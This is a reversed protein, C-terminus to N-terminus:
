RRVEVLAAMLLLALLGWFAIGAILSACFVEEPTPDRVGLWNSLIRGFM